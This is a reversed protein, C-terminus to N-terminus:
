GRSQDYVEPNVANLPREDRLVALLNETAMKAMRLVAERTTAGSHPSAGDCYRGLSIDPSPVLSRRGRGQRRDRRLHDSRAGARDPRVGDAAVPFQEM